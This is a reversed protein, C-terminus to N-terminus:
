DRNRQMKQKPMREEVGSAIRRSREKDFTVGPALAVARSLFHLKMDGRAGRTEGHLDTPDTGGIFQNPGALIQRSLLKGDGFVGRGMATAPRHGDLDRNRGGPAAAVVRGREPGFVGAACEAM